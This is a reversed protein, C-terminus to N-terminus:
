IGARVATTRFRTFYDSVSLFLFSPTCEINKHLFFKIKKSNKKQFSHEEELFICEVVSLSTKLAANIMPAAETAGIENEESIAKGAKM